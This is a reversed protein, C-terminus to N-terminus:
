QKSKGVRFGRKRPNRRAERLSEAKCEACIGHSVVQKYQDETLKDSLIRDPTYVRRCWACVSYPGGGRELYRKIVKWLIPNM